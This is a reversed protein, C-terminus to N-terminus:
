DVEKGYKMISVAPGLVKRLFGIPQYLDPDHEQEQVRDREGELKRLKRKSEKGRKSM